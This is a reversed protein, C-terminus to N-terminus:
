YYINPVICMLIVFNALFWPKEVVFCEDDAITKNAAIAVITLVNIVVMATAIVMFKKLFGATNQHHHIKNFSNIVCMQVLSVVCMVWFTYTTETCNVLEFTINPLYKKVLAEKLVYDFKWQM